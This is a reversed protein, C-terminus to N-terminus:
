GCRLEIVRRRSDLLVNIRRPRFDRTVGEGAGIVRVYAAGSQRAVEALLGRTVKRGLAFRAAAAGCEDRAPAEPALTQGEDMPNYSFSQSVGPRLGRASAGFAVLLCALFVVGAFSFNQVAHGRSTLRRPAARAGVRATM